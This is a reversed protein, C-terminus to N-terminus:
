RRVEVHVVSAELWADIWSPRFRLLRGGVKTHELKRDTVAAYIMKPSCRARAAAEKVNLWVPYDAPMTVAATLLNSEPQITM